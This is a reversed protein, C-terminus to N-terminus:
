GRVIEGLCRIPLQISKFQTAQRSASMVNQNVVVQADGGTLRVQYKCDLEAAFGGSRVKCSARISVRAVNALPVHKLEDYNAENRDADKALGDRSLQISCFNALQEGTKLGEERKKEEGVVSSKVGNQGPRLMSLIDPLWTAPFRLLVGSTLAVGERLGGDERATPEPLESRADASMAAMEPVEDDLRM